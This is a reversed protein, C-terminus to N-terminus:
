SGRRVLQQSLRALKVAVVGNMPKSTAWRRRTRWAAPREYSDSRQLKQRAVPRGPAESRFSSRSCRVVHQENTSRYLSPLPFAM